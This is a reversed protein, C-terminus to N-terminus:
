CPSTSAGLAEFMSIAAFGAAGAELVHPLNAMSVGGVALVPVLTARVADALRALGTPSTGPKSATAFVTGFLLFDAAGAAAAEDPSHVSQGILFGRPVVPRVRSGPFSGGRLQVGHANAALAVDLRDNVIVRTATGRVIDVARQCLDYLTRADLDRERIQVLQIGNAAAGRVQRLVGEPGPDSLRRRDTILCTIAKM